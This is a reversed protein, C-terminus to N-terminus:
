SAEVPDFVTPGEVPTGLAELARELLRRRLLREEEPM